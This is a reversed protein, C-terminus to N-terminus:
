NHWNKMEEDYDSVCSSNRDWSIRGYTTPNIWDEDQLTLNYINNIVADGYENHVIEIYRVGESPDLPVVVRIGNKEFVMKRSKMNIIADMDYAWDFGLLTPYLNNNDVIDIVEFDSLM